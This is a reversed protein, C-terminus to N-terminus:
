KAKAIKLVEHFATGLKENNTPTSETSQRAGYIRERLDRFALPVNLDLTSEQAGLMVILEKLKAEIGRLREVEVVVEEDLNVDDLNYETECKVNNSFKAQRDRLRELIDAMAGERRQKSGVSALSLVTATANMM